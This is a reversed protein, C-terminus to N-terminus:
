CSSRRRVCRLGFATEHRAYQLKLVDLCNSLEEENTVGRGSVRKDGLPFQKRVSDTMYALPM